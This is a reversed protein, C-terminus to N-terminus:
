NHKIYGSKKEITCNVFRVNSNIYKNSLALGHETDKNSDLDERFMRKVEVMWDEDMKLFNCNTAIDNWLTRYLNVNPHHNYSTPIEGIRIPRNEVLFERVVSPQTMSGDGFTDICWEDYGGRRYNDSEYLWINSFDLEDFEKKISPMVNEIDYIEDVYSHYSDNVLISDDMLQMRPNGHNSEPWQELAYDTEFWSTLSGQMFCYNYNINNSKLFYQTKLLYDFYMKVKKQEPIMREIEVAKDLFSQLEISANPIHTHTPNIYVMDGIKGINHHELSNEIGLKKFFETIFEDKNPQGILKLEVNRRDVFTFDKSIDIFHFPELNIRSWQSWEIFCYINESYVGSKLLFNVTHIISDSIWQAGQSALSVDILIVKEDTIFWQKKGLKKSIVEDLSDYVGSEIPKKISEIMQGYSCGSNIIFKYENLKEEM